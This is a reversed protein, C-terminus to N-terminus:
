LLEWGGSEFDFRTHWNWGPDAPGPVHQLAIEGEAALGTGQFEDNLSGLLVALKAQAAIERNQLRVEPDSGILGSQPRDADGVLQLDPAVDPNGAFFFLLILQGRLQSTEANLNRIGKGARRSESETM